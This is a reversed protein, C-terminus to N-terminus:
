TFKQKHQIKGFSVSFRPYVDMDRAPNSAVIETNAGYVARGSPDAGQM